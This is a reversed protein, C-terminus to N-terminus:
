ENSLTGRYALRGPRTELLSRTRRVPLSLRLTLHIQLLLQEPTAPIGQGLLLSTPLAEDAAEEAVALPVAVVPRVALAPQPQVIVMPVEAIAVRPTAPIVVGRLAAGKVRKTSPPRRDVAAALLVGRQGAVRLFLCTFPLVRAYLVVELVAAAAALGALAARALLERM